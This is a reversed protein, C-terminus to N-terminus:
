KEVEEYLWSLVNRLNEDNAVLYPFANFVEKMTRFTWARPIMEIEGDLVSTIEKYCDTCNHKISKVKLVICNECGQEIHKYQEM